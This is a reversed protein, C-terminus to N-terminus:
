WRAVVKRGFVDIIFLELKKAFVLVRLREHM